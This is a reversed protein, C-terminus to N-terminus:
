RGDLWVAASDGQVRADLNLSRALEAWAGPDGDLTHITAVDRDYEDAVARVGDMAIDLAEAPSGAHAHGKMTGSVLLTTTWTGDDKQHYDAIVQVPAGAALQRAHVRAAKAKAAKKRANTKSQSASRKVM